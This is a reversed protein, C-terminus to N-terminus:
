ECNDSALECALARFTRLTTHLSADDDPISQLPHPFFSLQLYFDPAGGIARYSKLSSLTREHYALASDTGGTRSFLGMGFRSGLGKVHMEVDKASSWSMGNQEEEAIEWPLDLIVHDLALGADGLAHALATYAGKWPRGKSPLADIVGIPLGPRFTEIFEAFLVVDQIRMTMPYPAGPLPKSLVSQLSLAAVHGGANEIREILTRTKALFQDITKGSTALRHQLWVAETVDLVLAVDDGSLVPVLSEELFADDLGHPPHRLTNTRVMFTNMRARSKAWSAPHEFRHKFDAPIGAAVALNNDEFWLPPPL